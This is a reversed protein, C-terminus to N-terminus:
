DRVATNFSTIYYWPIACPHFALLLLSICALRLVVRLVHFPAFQAERLSAAVVTWAQHKLTWQSNNAGTSIENQFLNHILTEYEIMQIEFCYKGFM